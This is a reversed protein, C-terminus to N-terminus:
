KVIFKSVYPSENVVVTIFYLGSEVKGLDIMELKSGVTENLSNTYIKQGLENTVIVEVSSKEALLIDLTFTGNNPNPYISLSNGNGIEDLGVNTATVSNTIVDTGCENTVTLTVTYTGAATYIHTPNEDISTNGDGFDWSYSVTGEAVTTNTFFATVYSATNTFSAVPTTAGVVVVSDMGTGCADTVTLFYTGSATVAITPTTETTSWAYATGPMTSSLTASGPTCFFTTDAEVFDTYVLASTEVIITDSGSGCVSIVDVFYTGPLTVDISQTTDGTSWLITDAPSGAWLTLVEGTCILEDTGLFDGTLPAFEDAGIDPTSADRPTGDIDVTVQTIPTGSGNLTDSCVHLDEFSQFMPDTSISNTGQGSATQYAAIDAVNGGSTFIFNSGGETYYNNYDAESVTYQSNYYAAYGLGNLVFNNNTLTVL